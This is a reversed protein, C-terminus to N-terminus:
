CFLGGEKEARRLIIRTGDLKTPRGSYTTAIVPHAYGDLTVARGM